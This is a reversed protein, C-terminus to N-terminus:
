ESNIASKYNSNWRYQIDPERRELCGEKVLVQLFDYLGDGLTSASWIVGKVGHWPDLPGSADSPAGFEPWFGLCAGLEYEALDWDTWDALREQLSALSRNVELGELSIAVSQM